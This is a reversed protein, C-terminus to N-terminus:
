RVDLLAAEYEGLLMEAVPGRNAYEAPISFCKARISIHTGNELSVMDALKEIKSALIEGGKQNTRPVLLWFTNTGTSTAIDTVRILERIRTALEDILNELQTIGGTNEISELSAIKICLLSFEEESYRARMQLLWDTVQYFYIPLVNRNNDFLSYKFEITGLQVARKGKATM